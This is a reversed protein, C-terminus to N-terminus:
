WWRRPFDEASASAGCDGAKLVLGAVLTTIMVAQSRGGVTWQMFFPGRLHMSSTKLHEPLFWHLGGREETKYDLRYASAAAAWVDKSVLLRWCQKVLSSNPLQTRPFFLFCAIWCLVEWFCDSLCSSPRAGLECRVCLKAAEPHGSTCRLAQPM